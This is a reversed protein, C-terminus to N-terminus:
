AALVQRFMTDVLERILERLKKISYLSQKAASRGRGTNAKTVPAGAWIDLHESLLNLM